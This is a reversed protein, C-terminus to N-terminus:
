QSTPYIPSVIFPQFLSKGKPVCHSGHRVTKGRAGDSWGRQRGEQRVLAALRDGSASRNASTAAPAGARGSLRM